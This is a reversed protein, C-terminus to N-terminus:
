NGPTLEATAITDREPSLTAMSHESLYRRETAQWAELGFGREIAAIDPGSIDVCPYREETSLQGRLRIPENHDRARAWRVLSIASRTPM